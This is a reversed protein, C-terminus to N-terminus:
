PSFFTHAEKCQIEYRERLLGERSLEDSLLLSDIRGDNALHLLVTDHDSVESSSESQSVTNVRM